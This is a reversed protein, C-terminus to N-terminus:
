RATPCCRRRRRPAPPPPAPRSARTPRPRRGRGRRPCRGTSRRRRGPGTRRGRRRGGSSGAARGTAAGFQRRGRVGPPIPGSGRVRSRSPLAHDPLQVPHRALRAAVDEGEGLVDGALVPHGREGLLGQELQAVRHALYAVEEGVVVVAPQDAVGLEVRGRRAGLEGDGRGGPAAPHAAGQEVRDPGGRRLRREPGVAVEGAGLRERGRGPQPHHALQELHRGREAGQVAGIQGPVGGHGDPGEGRAPVLLVPDGEVGAGEGVVGLLAPHGDRVQLRALGLVPEVRGQEPEGVGGVGRVGGRRGGHPDLDHRPLARPLDVGQADVGVGLPLPQAPHEGAAGHDLEGPAPQAAGREVDLAVVVGARRVYWFSPKRHTAM